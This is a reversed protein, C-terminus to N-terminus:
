AARWGGLQMQCHWSTSVLFSTGCGWFGVAGPTFALSSLILQPADQRQVLPALAKIYPVADSHPNQRDHISVSPFTRLQLTDSLSRLAAANSVPHWPEAPSIAAESAAALAAGVAEAALGAAAAEPMGGAAVEAAECSDFCSIVLRTLATLPQLIGPPM